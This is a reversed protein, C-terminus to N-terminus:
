QYREEVSIGGAGGPGGNSVSGGTAGAGGAGVIYPYTAAPSGINAEIYAGSGGGAGGQAQTAENNSAGGGGGGGTGDVGAGGATTNGFSNGAGGLASAGGLGGFPYLGVASFGSGGGAGGGGSVALKKIAPSNVTATGGTGGGTAGSQNGGLGGTAILTSPGFFTTGGNGGTVGSVGTYTGGGGGGGVATVVIYLPAPSTPTTYTAYALAASFTINAGSGGNCASGGGSSYTLTGSGSPASVGSAWLQTASSTVTSIVTFSHANSTYVCGTTVSAALGSVTFMYGATSGTSGFYQVTPATLAITPSAWVPALTTGQSKLFTGASGNALMATTASATQYPISGGAGGTINTATTATTANGSLAGSFTTTALVNTSPNFTLGAGLNFPQNSNSSSAVFLPFYSASNSVAVTAANTANTATTSTTASTASTATSANGTLAGVFTTTTLANTSPNFTLGSGLNFAQNGNSSSAFLAPFYSASNSVAVTAGNTANTATTATTATTANGSLAASITGASFNGSADRKVMTKATNASVAPGQPSVLQFQTGDYMAIIMQGALIDGAVLAGGGPETLNIAGLSAINITSSGTNANVAIFTVGIGNGYSAIPPNTTAIVYANASGTDVGYPLIGPIGSGQPSWFPSVGNSTLVYGTNVNTTIVSENGSSDSWLLSNHTQQAMKTWPITPLAAAPLNQLSSNTGDSLVVKNATQSGTLATLAAAQTTQGTGGNGIAVVGTVNAANGTTSGSSGTVNGTVNGTLNATITGASFNGSSDRLVLDNATNGTAATGTVVTGTTPLTLTTTGSTTFTIGHTGYNLSAAGNNAVGTGGAASSIPTASNSNILSAVNSGTLNYNTWKSGNFQLIDNNSLSVSSGPYATVVSGSSDWGWLDYPVAAPTGSSGGGGSGGGSSGGIGANLNQLTMTVQDLQNSLGQYPFVGAASFATTQTLPINRTIVLYQSTTPPTGMLVTTGPNGGTVTFKSSGSGQLITTVTVPSTSTDYMVVNIWANSLFAFGINFTTTSGNGYSTTTSVTTNTVTTWALQPPCSVMAATLGLFLAIHRFYNKM